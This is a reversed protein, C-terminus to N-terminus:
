LSLNEMKWPGTLPDLTLLTEFYATQPCSYQGNIKVINKLYINQVTQAVKCCSNNQFGLM